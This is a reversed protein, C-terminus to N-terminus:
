LISETSRSLVLSIAYRSVLSPLAEKIDGPTSLTIITGVKRSLLVLMSSSRTSAVKPVVMHMFPLMTILLPSIHAIPDWATMFLFTVFPVVLLHLTPVELPM